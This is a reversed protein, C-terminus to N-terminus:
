REMMESVDIECRVDLDLDSDINERWKQRNHSFPFNSVDDCIPSLGPNQVFLKHRISSVLICELLFRVTRQLSRREQWAHGQWAHGGGHMGGAM